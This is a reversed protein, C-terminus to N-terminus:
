TPQAAMCRDFSFQVWHCLCRIVNLNRMIISDSRFVGLFATEKKFFNTHLLGIQYGKLQKKKLM